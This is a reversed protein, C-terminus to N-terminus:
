IQLVFYFSPVFVCVSVGAQSSPAPVLDSPLQAPGWVRPCPFPVGALGRGVGGGRPDTPPASPATETLANPGWPFTM